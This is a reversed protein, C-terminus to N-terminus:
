IKISSDFYKGVGYAERRFFKEPAPGTIQMEPHSKQVDLAIRMEKTCGTSFTADKGSWASPVKRGLLAFSDEIDEVTQFRWVDLLGSRQVKEWMFMLDDGDLGEEFHEAPNVIHTNDLRARLSAVFSNVVELAVRTQGPISGIIASYFMVTKQERRAQRMQGIIEEALENLRRESFYRAGAAKPRCELHFRGAKDRWYCIIDRTFSHSTHLLVDANRFGKAMILDCEKWARAFTTSVRHLNLAETTGDSIIVLQHERLHRLLDNKGARDNNLAFADELANALLPDEELDWFSPADFLFGRKLSLVVRHGRALLEKIIRIDAMFGGAREPIFLITLAEGYLHDQLCSHDPCVEHLDNLLAQPLTEPADPGTNPRTNPGAIPETGPRRNPGTEPGAGPTNEKWLAELTSLRLYRYLAVYDLYHRLEPISKGPCPKDPLRYLAKKLEPHDLRQEARRNAAQRHQLFPDPQASQALVIGVLRRLMRSPLMIGEEAYMEYRFRCLTAVTAKKDPEVACQDILREVFAWVGAYAKNLSDKDAEYIAKFMSDSAPVYVQDESLAVMFALQEPSAVIGPNLLYEINNEMLFHILWAKLAPSTGLRLESVKTFPPLTRALQRVQM